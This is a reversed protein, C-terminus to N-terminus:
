FHIWDGSRTQNGKVHRLISTNEGRENEPIAVRAEPRLSPFPLMLIALVCTHMLSAPFKKPM